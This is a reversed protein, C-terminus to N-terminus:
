LRLLLTRQLQALLLLTLLLILLLTLLLRLLTLLLLTLIYLRITRTTLGGTLLGNLFSGSRFGLRTFDTALDQGGRGGVVYVHFKMRAVLRVVTRHAFRAETTLRVQLYVHSSMRAFPRKLALETQFPERLLATQISVLAHMRAFPRVGAVDTLFTERYLAVYRRMTPTVDRLLRQDTVPTGQRKRRLTLEGYVNTRMGRTRSVFTPNAPTRKYSVAVQYPMLIPNM